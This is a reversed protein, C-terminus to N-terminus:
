THFNNQEYNKLAVLIRSYSDEVLPLTLTYKRDIFDSVGLVQAQQFIHLKSIHKITISKTVM